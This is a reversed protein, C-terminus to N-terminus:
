RPTPRKRTGPNDTRSALHPVPPISPAQVLLVPVINVSINRPDRRVTFKRKHAPEEPNAANVWRRLVDSYYAIQDILIGHPQVTREVYPM